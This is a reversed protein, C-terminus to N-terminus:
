LVVLGFCFLLGPFLILYTSGLSYALPLCAFMLVAWFICSVIFSYHYQHLFSIRVGLVASTRNESLDIVEQGEM